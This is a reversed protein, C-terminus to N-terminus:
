CGGTIGTISYGIGVRVYVCVCVYNKLQFFYLDSWALTGGQM